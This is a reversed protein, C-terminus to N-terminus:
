GSSASIYRLIYEALELKLLAGLQLLNSISLALEREKRGDGPQAAQQTGNLTLNSLAFGVRAVLPVDLFLSGRMEM